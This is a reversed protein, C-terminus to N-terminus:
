EAAMSLRAPAAPAAPGAALRAHPRRRRCLTSEAALLLRRPRTVVQRAALATGARRRRRRHLHRPSAGARPHRRRSGRAVAARNLDDATERWLDAFEDPPPASVGCGRGARKELNAPGAWVRVVPAGLEAATDLIPQLEGPKDGGVRYYSGYSSVILGADATLRAVRRATAADGPPVHIDGGWEIGALGADAAVRVVAEPALPRLTVSCLGPRIPPENADPTEGEPM